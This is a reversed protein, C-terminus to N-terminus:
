RPFLTELINVLEYALFSFFPSLRDNFCILESATFLEPLKWVLAEHILRIARQFTRRRM